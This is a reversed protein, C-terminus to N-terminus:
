LTAISFKTYLPYEKFDATFYIEKVNFMSGRAAQDHNLGNWSITIGDM